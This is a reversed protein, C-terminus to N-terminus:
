CKGVEKYAGFYRVPVHIHSNMKNKVMKLRERKPLIYIKDIARKNKEM